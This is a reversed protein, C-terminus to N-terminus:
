VSAIATIGRIATFAAFEGIILKRDSFPFYARFIRNFRDPTKTAQEIVTRCMMLADNHGEQFQEIQQATYTNEPEYTEQNIRLTNPTCVGYDRPLPTRKLLQIDHRPRPGKSGSAKSSGAQAGTAPLRPTNDKVPPAFDRNCELTWMLEIAFLSYSDANNKAMDKRLNRSDYFSYAHDDTEEDLPPQVLDPAHTYEHLMVTGLTLMYESVRDGINDCKRKATGPWEKGKGGKITGFLFFDPCLIIQTRHGPIHDEKPVTLAVHTIHKGDCHEDEGVRPGSSPPFDDM